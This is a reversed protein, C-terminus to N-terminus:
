LLNLLSSTLFVNKNFVSIGFVASKNSNRTDLFYLFSIFAKVRPGNLGTGTSHRFQARWPWVNVFTELRFWFYPKSVRITLPKFDCSFWNQYLLFEFDEPGQTGALELIAEPVLYILAKLIKTSLRKSKIFMGLMCVAHKIFNFCIFIYCDVQGKLFCLEFLNFPQTM